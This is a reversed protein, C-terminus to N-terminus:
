RVFALAGRIFPLEGGVRSLLPNAVRNGPTVPAVRRGSRASTRSAGSVLRGISTVLASALPFGGTVVRARLLVAGPCGLITGQGRDVSLPHAPIEVSGRPVSRQQRLFPPSCLLFLGKGLPARLFLSSLKCLLAPLQGSV